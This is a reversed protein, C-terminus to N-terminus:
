SFNEPFHGYLPSPTGGLETVGKKGVNKESLPPPGGRNRLEKKALFIGYLPPTGGKRFFDAFYYKFAERLVYKM